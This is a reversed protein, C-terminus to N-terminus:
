TLISNKVKMVSPISKGYNCILPASIAVLFFVVAFDDREELEFLVFDFLLEVPLFVADLDTECLLEVPEFDGRELEDRVDDTEM